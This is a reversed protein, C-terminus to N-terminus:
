KSRAKQAARSPRSATCVRSADLSMQTEPSYVVYAPFDSGRGRSKATAVVYFTSSAPVVLPITLITDLGDDATVDAADIATTTFLREGRGSRTANQAYYTLYYDYKDTNKANTVPLPFADSTAFSVQDDSCSLTVDADEITSAPLEFMFPYEVSWASKGSGFNLKLFVVQSQQPVQDNLQVRMGYIGDGESGDGSEGNDKLKKDWDGSAVEGNADIVKSGGLLQDDEEPGRITVSTPEIGERLKAQFALVVTKAGADDITTEVRVNFYEIGENYQIDLGTIATTTSKTDFVDLTGDKDDDHHFAIPVPQLSVFKSLATSRDDDDPIENLAALKSLSTSQFSISSSTPNFQIHPKSEVLPPLKTGTVQFFPQVKTPTSTVTQGFVSVLTFNADLEAMTQIKGTRVKSLTFNGDGDVDAVRALGTDREMMVIISGTLDSQSSATVSTLSGTLNSMTGSLGNDSSTGGSSASDGTRGCSVLTAGVMPIMLGWTCVHQRLTRM